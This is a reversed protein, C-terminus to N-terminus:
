CTFKQGDSYSRLNSGMMIVKGDYAREPRDFGPRELLLHNAKMIRYVRKHNAPALSEARLERNLVACNRCYGYIPREAVLRGVRPLLAAARARYYSRCPETRGSQRGHLNSRSVGLTQAVATMPFRGTQPARPTRLCPRNKSRPKDLAEKLNEVELIKCGPQRELEGVRVEMDRVTKSSTVSDDGTVAVRGGEPM